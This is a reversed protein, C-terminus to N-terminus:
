NERIGNKRKNTISFFQNQNTIKELPTGRCGGLTTGHELGGGWKETFFSNERTNIRPKLVKLTYFVRGAANCLPRIKSIITLLLYTNGTGIQSYM